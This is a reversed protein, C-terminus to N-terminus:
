LISGKDSLTYMHFIYLFSYQLSTYPLYITKLIPVTLPPGSHGSVHSM